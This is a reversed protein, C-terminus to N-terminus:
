REWFMEETHFRHLKQEIVRCLEKRGEGTQSSFLLVEDTPVELAHAALQRQKQRRGRAVKDAKTAVALAPLSYHRLWDAMQQDQVTPEHRLDVLLIVMAITNRTALFEEILAGWEKKMQYSVKAYGYGPLDVFFWSENIFYFHVARTKGPTNSTRALNKRRVLTNILSSKGVNSRGALVIEPFREPPFEASKRASKLLRTTKIKM